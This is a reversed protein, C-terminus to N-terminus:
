LSKLWARQRVKRNRDSLKEVISPLVEALPVPGEPSISDCMLVHFGIPSEIVDSVEGAKMSFLVNEISPFLVGKKVRGLEGGNMATPCESYKIAQEAFRKPKKQLRMAIQTARKFAEERCNEPFDPNITILVHRAQRTEARFFKDPNMYYYLKADTESCGDASAAVMEMTADVRLNATVARRFADLDLEFNSLTEVFEETNNFRASISNIESEVQEPTVVVHAAEPSRLVKSQLAVQAQAIKEVQEREEDTLKTLSDGFQAVAVQLTAYRLDSNPAVTATM